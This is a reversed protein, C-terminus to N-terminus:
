LPEPDALCRRRVALARKFNPLDLKDVNRVARARLRCSDMSGVDQMACRSCHSLFGACCSVAGSAEVCVLEGVVMVFSGVAVRDM